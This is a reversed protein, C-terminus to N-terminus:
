FLSIAALFSSIFEARRLITNEERTKIKTCKQNSANATSIFFDFVFSFNMQLQM